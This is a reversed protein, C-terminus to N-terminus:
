RKQLADLRATIYQQDNPRECYHRGDSLDKMAEAKRDMAEYAQARALYLDCRDQNAMDPFGMMATYEGVAEDYRRTQRLYADALLAHLHYLNIPGLKTPYRQALDLAVRCEEVAKDALKRFYAAECLYGRAMPDRPDLQVAEEARTLMLDPDKLDFAQEARLLAPWDYPRAWRGNDDVFVISDRVTPRGKASLDYALVVAGPEVKDVRLNSWTWPTTDRLMRFEDLSCNVRAADTLMTYATAYDGSSLADLYQKAVQPVVVSPSGEHLVTIIFAGAALLAGIMVTLAVISKLLYLPGNPLLPAPVPRPARPRGPEGADSPLPPRVDVAEGLRTGSRGAQPLAVGAGPSMPAAAARAPAAISTGCSDCYNKALSNRFQCAPCVKVLAGGCASCVLGSGPAGCQACVVSVAESL